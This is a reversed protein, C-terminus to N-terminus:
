FAPGAKWHYSFKSRKRCVRFVAPTRKVIEGDANVARRRSSTAVVTVDMEEAIQLTLSRM